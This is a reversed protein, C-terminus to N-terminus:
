IFLNPIKKFMMIKESPSARIAFIIIPIMKCFHDCDETGRGMFEESARLVAKPVPILITLPSALTEPNLCLNTALSIGRKWALPSVKNGNGFDVEFPEFLSQNIFILFSEQLKYPLHKGPNRFFPWRCFLEDKIWPQHFPEKITTLSPQASVSEM